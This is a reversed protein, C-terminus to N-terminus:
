GHPKHTCTLPPLPSHLLQPDDPLSLCGGVMSLLRTCDLWKLTPFLSFLMTRADMRWGDMWGDVSRSAM